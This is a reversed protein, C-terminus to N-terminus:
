QVTALLSLLSWLGYPHFDSMFPSTRFPCDDRLGFRRWLSLGQAPLPPLFGSLGPLTTRFQLPLGM